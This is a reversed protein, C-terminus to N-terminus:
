ISTYLYISNKRPEVIEPEIIKEKSSIQPKSDETEDTTQTTLLEERDRTDIM